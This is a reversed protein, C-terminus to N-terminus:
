KKQHAEGCTKDCYLYTPFLGPTQWFGTELQYGKGDKFPKGCNDCEAWRVFSRGAVCDECVDDYGTGRGSFGTGGCTKCEETIPENM